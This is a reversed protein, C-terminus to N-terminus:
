ASLFDGILMQNFGKIASNLSELSRDADGVKSQLSTSQHINIKSVSKWHLLDDKLRLIINQKANMENKLDFTEGDEDEENLENESISFTNKAMSINRSLSDICVIRSNPLQLKLPKLDIQGVNEKQDKRICSLKKLQPNDLFQIYKSDMTLSKNLDISWDVTSAFSDAKIDYSTGYSLSSTNSIENLIVKKIKMKSIKRILLKISSRLLEYNFKKDYLIKELRNLLDFEQLKESHLEIHLQTPHQEIYRDNCDLDAYLILRDYEVMKRDIINLKSSIDSQLMQCKENYYKLLVSDRSKRLKVVSLISNLTFTLKLREKQLNQYKEFAFRNDSGFRNLKINEMSADNILMSSTAVQSEVHNFLNTKTTKLLETLNQSEYILHSKSTSILKIESELKGIRSVLKGIQPSDDIM